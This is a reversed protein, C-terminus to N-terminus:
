GRGYEQEGRWFWLYGGLGVGVSWATAVTWTLWLPQGPPPPTELLAYRALEIYALMPNAQLTVTVATPLHTDLLDVSYFVGSAYLWTRLVFPMLQRLDTAKAGLRAIALALGTNFVTQLALVPLLLLWAATVPEGTILIIALLVAVSAGMQQLQSFTTAVPLSARPFQLARILGLHDPISRVAALVVQQTYGFLFVGACLYATFNDIGHSTKLVVGFILYYVVANSLPTLVQWIQGLRATAFVAANKASGFAAIFHRYRWLERTYAALSPTVGAVRLRHRAALEAPTRLPAPEALLVEAM